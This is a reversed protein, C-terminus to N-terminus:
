SCLIPTCPRCRHLDSITPKGVVPKSAAKTTVPLLFDPLIISSLRRDRNLFPSILAAATSLLMLAADACPTLSLPLPPGRLIMRAM